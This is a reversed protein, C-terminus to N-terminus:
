SKVTWPAGAMICDPCEKAKPHAKLFRATAQEETEGKRKVLIHHVAEMHDALEEEDKPLFPIDRGKLGKERICIKCALPM